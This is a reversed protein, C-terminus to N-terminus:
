DVFPYDAWAAAALELQEAARGCRLPGCGHFVCALRGRGPCDAWTAEASAACEM